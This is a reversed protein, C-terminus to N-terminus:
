ISLQSFIQFNSHFKLISFSQRRSKKENEALNTRRTAPLLQIKFFYKCLIHLMIHHKYNLLKQLCFVESDFPQICFIEVVNSQIIFAKSKIYQAESNFEILIFLIILILILFLGNKRSNTKSIKEFIEHFKKSLQTSTQLHKM